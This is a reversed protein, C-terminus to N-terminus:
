KSELAAAVAAEVAKQVYRALVDGEVNVRDGPKLGGLTTVELTHPILAVDFTREDLAAVTLSVGDITISGKLVVGTELGAPVNFTVVRHDGQEEVRAVHTTTDVHGQVWHGGLPEGASLPPELNVEDGVRLAGLTTRSLTEPSLDFVSRAAGDVEGQEAVTLCVGAIAISAGLDLKAALAPTHGVVLRAGGRDSVGPAEVVRGRETVIGTFM